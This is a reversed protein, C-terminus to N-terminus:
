RRQGGPLLGRGPRQAHPREPQPRPDLRGRGVRFRAAAEGHLAEARDRAEVALAAKSQWQLEASERGTLARGAPHAACWTHEDFLAMREYVRDVEGAWDPSRTPAPSARRGHRAADAGDAGRGARPPQLRGRARGLRARRGVLGDLRRAFTELEGGHREELREFFERNTSPVLQPYAVRAGLRGRDRAPVPSPGANDALLGQVRLHLLDFPYPERPRRGPPRADRARRRVPLRALSLAALYEPLLDHADAYSDALGLLNGELYAIGHPSDTHWVLVRKGSETGWHFARPLSAGGTLHPTARSAWNHAVALYRVGGDALVLPLGPPAAPCTPRCRPSSRSATAAGCSRARLPAAARARRDVAGRRAHTFPLACVEFRGSRM